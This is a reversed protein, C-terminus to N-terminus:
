IKYFKILTSKFVRKYLEFIAIPDDDPKDQLYLRYMKPLSLDPHLYERRTFSRYYHSEVGPFRDIYTVVSKRKMSDIEASSDARGSRNEEELVGNENVKSSTVRVFKEKICLTNLFMKKCVLVSGGDFPLRYYLADAKKDYM